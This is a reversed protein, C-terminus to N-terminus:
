GGGGDGGFFGHQLVEENLVNGIMGCVLAQLREVDVFLNHWGWLGTPGGSAVCNISKATEPTLSKFFKNHMMVDGNKDKFTFSTHV